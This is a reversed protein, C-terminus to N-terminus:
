QTDKEPEPPLPMWHTPKLSSSQHNFRYASMWKFTDKDDYYGTIPQHFIEPWYLLVWTRDMPASSIDQWEVVSETAAIAKRAIEGLYWTALEPFKAEACHTYDILASRLVKVAEAPTM